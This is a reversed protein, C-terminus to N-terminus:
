GELINLFDHEDNLINFPEIPSVVPADIKILVKTYIINKNSNEVILHAYLQIPQSASNRLLSSM